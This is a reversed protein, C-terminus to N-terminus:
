YIKLVRKLIIKEREERERERNKIKYIIIIIIILDILLKKEISEGRENAWMKCMLWDFKRERGDIWSCLFYIYIYIFWGLIIKM